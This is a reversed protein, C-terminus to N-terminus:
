DLQEAGAAADGQVGGVEGALAAGGPAVQRARGHRADGDADDPALAVVVRRPAPGLLAAVALLLVAGHAGLQLRAHLPRALVLPTRDLIVPARRGRGGSLM